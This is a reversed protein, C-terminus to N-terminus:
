KEFSKQFPEPFGGLRSGLLNPLWKPEMKAGNKSGNQSWFPPVKFFHFNLERKQSLEIKLTGPMGLVVWFVVKKPVRKPFPGPVGRPLMKLARPTSKPRNQPVWKAGLVAGFFVEFFLGWLLGWFGGFFFRDQCPVPLASLNFVHAWCRVLDRWFRWGWVELMQGARGLGPVELSRGLRQGSVPEWDTTKPRAERPRSWAESHHLFTQLQGADAWSRGLVQM